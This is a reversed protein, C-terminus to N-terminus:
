PYHRMLSTTHKSTIKGKSDFYISDYGKPNNQYHYFSIKNENQDQWIDWKWEPHDSQSAISVTEIFDSVGQYKNVFTVVESKTPLSSSPIGTDSGIGSGTDSGIGSGTDSSIGSGTDSSIGSGTDSGIGSGTDSSIGSGTGTNDSAQEPNVSPMVTIYNTKIEMDDDAENTVAETVTYVGAKQYTHEPNQKTSTVKDGFNWNWSDPSGTSMDYFQVTLPAEGSTRDAFFDAAPFVPEEIVNTYGPNTDYDDLAQPVGSQNEDTGNILAIGGLMMFCLIAGIALKKLADHKAKIKADKRAKEEAKQRKKKEEEERAREVEEGNQKSQTDGGRPEKKKSDKTKSLEKDYEKRKEADLLVEKIENIRKTIGDAWVDKCIDPHYKILLRKCAANIEKSTADRKVGIFEYFDDTLNEM